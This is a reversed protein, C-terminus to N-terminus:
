KMRMKYDELWTGAFAALLDQAQLTPELELDVWNLQQHKVLQLCAMLLLVIKLAVM